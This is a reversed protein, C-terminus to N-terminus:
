KERDAHTLEVGPLAVWGGVASPLWSLADGGGVFKAENKLANSETPSAVSGSSGKAGSVVTCASRLNDAAGRRCGKEVIAASSEAHSAVSGSSRAALLAASGSRSSWLAWCSLRRWTRLSAFNELAKGVAESWEPFGKFHEGGATLGAEIGARIQKESWFGGPVVGTAARWLNVVMPPSRWHESWWEERRIRPVLLNESNEERLIDIWELFNMKGSLATRFLAALCSATASPLRLVGRLLPRRCRALRLM